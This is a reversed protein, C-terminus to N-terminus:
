NNLESELFWYQRQMCAKWAPDDVANALWECAEVIDLQMIEWKHAEYAKWATELAKESPKPIDHLIGHHLKNHIDVDLEYVFAQRLLFGYGKSFHCRQFILHHKNTHGRRQKKRLRRGRKGM